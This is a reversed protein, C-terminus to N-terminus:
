VYTQKPCSSRRLYQSNDELTFPDGTMNVEIWETDRPSKGCEESAYWTMYFRNLDPEIVLTHIAAKRTILTGNRKFTFAIDWVPLTFTTIGEPSLNALTVREGGSLYGNAMLESQACNFFLLDMDSPFLPRRNMKWAQDYTGAYSRRRPSGPLSFGLTAPTYTKRYSTILHLPDEINPLRTGGIQDGDLVFGTGTPNEEFPIKEGKKTTATGGFMRNSSLPMRVFTEPETMRYGPRFLSKTWTRNGTVRIEKYLAGVRVAAKLKTVPVNNPSFVTGHVGIDTNKKGVVLDAPYLMRATGPEGEVQEMSFVDVQGDSLAPHAGNFPISFTAKAVAVALNHGDQDFLIASAAKLPTTNIMDLM